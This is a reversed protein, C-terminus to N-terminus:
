GKTRGALNWIRRAFSISKTTEFGNMSTGEWHRIMLNTGGTHQLILWVMVLTETHHQRRIKSLWGEIKLRLRYYLCGQDTSNGMASYLEQLNNKKETYLKKDHHVTHETAWANSAFAAKYGKGSMSLYWADDGQWRMQSMNWASGVKRKRLRKGTM